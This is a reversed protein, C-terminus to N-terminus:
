PHEGPVYPGIWGVQSMAVGSHYSFADAATTGVSEWGSPGNSGITLSRICDSALPVDPNDQGLTITSNMRHFTSNSAVQTGSADYVRIEFKYAGASTRNTFAWEFRYTQFKNLVQLYDGTPLTAKFDMTGNTNSGIRFEFQFPCAGPVPEIPHHGGSALTGYSNPIDLRYYIRFYMGQGTLPEPWQNLTKVDASNVGMYRTRLVNNIGAPFGLGAASVVYLQDADPHWDNWHIPKSADTIAAQSNGMGTSFDSAFVLPVQGGSPATVNITANGSVGSMATIQSSGAGVGTVVGSSSVTAVATNSSAWTVTRGTLVNGAADRLTATAQVAAGVGISSSGLSVTVSAVAPLIVTQTASGSVGESTATIQATGAALATVLGNASVTAVSTNSSSWTVVRGTLVNNSADRLTVSAQTTQGVNLSPASLTVAVSAVPVPAPANVTLAAGGTIGESTASIQASGAAVSTVVGSSSVTAVSPNSSTWTIARGTLVNNSADRLTATAQTTQGAVVTSAALSVSVSAVPAPAAANVTLTASGTRGEATATIQASGTAVATVVGTASVTAVGTNSSSWAIPRGTLVNNSADRLVANAQTTQGPTIPTANLTVSVTAVPAPNVTLTASGSQGESTATIQASGSAVTTVLGASSVTAVATNSSSWTVARGTLINNSADRLTVSAQTTQGGALLTSAALGVSVSAVPIPAPTNVTLNGSGTVGEAVARIQATGVGVATVVGNAAVTAVSTNTSSWAVPRGTLVNNSADRLDAMAQTTQGVTLTNSNFTVTVSAVPAPPPPTSAPVTLSQSATVGESTARITTSGQAVASILGAASITAASTNTSTWTVARDTLVVGDSDRVTASAQATLSVALSTPATIAVTAVPAPTVDTPADASKGGASARVRTQGNKKGRVLGTTTVDVISTDLSTWSVPASSLVAGAGDRVTATVQVQKGRHVVISQPSITVSAVDPSAPPSPLTTDGGLSTSTLRGEASCATITALGILAIVARRM